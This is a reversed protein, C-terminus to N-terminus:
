SIWGGCRRDMKRWSDGVKEFVLTAGNGCLAGCRYSYSVVAHRKEKDFAIESLSFLGTSFAEDVAESVSKGERMTKDPYNKRVIEAQKNPDVLRANKMTLVNPTFVHFTHAASQLNQLEIGRICDATVSGPHSTPDFPYTRVSVNLQNQGKGGIYQQLAMRYIVIEDASLPVDSKIADVGKTNGLLSAGFFLLLVSVRSVSGRM